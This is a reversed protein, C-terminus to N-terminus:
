VHRIQWFTVAFIVGLVAESAAAVLISAGAIGTAYHFVGTGAVGFWVLAAIGTLAVVIPSPAANRVSFLLAGLGIVVPAFRQAAFDMQPTYDVVYLSLYVQPMVLLVVGLLGAFLGVITMLLKFM